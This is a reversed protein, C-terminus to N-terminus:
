ALSFAVIWFLVTIGAFLGNKSFDAGRPPLMITQIHKLFLPFNTCLATKTRNRSADNQTTKSGVVQMNLPVYMDGDLHWLGMKYAIEWMFCVIIAWNTHNSWMLLTSETLQNGVCTMCTYSMNHLHKGYMRAKYLPTNYATKGVGKVPHSSMRPTQGWWNWVSSPSKTSWVGVGQMCSSSLKHTQCVWWWQWVTSCM